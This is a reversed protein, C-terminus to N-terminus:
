IGATESFVSVKTPGNIEESLDEQEDEGHDPNAPGERPYAFVL